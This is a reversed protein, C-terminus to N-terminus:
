TVWLPTVPMSASGTGVEGAALTPSGVQSAVGYHTTSAQGTSGAAVSGTKGEQLGGPNTFTIGCGTVESAQAEAAAQIVYDPLATTDSVAWRQFSYSEQGIINPDNKSYSYSTLYWIGSIGEVADGCAAPDVIVSHQAIDDCDTSASVNLSTPGGTGEYVTVSVTETPKEIIFCETVSGLKYVRQVNPSYGWSVNTNCAKNFIGGVTTGFGIIVSTAM